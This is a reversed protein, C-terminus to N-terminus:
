GFFAKEIVIENGTISIDFGGECRQGKYTRPCICTFKKKSNVCTGGNLCPNSSCEDHDTKCFFFSDNRM